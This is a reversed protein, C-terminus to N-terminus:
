CCSSACGKDRKDESSRAVPVNCHNESPSFGQLARLRSFEGLLERTAQWADSTINDVEGAKIAQVLERLFRKSQDKLENEKIQGSRLPGAALQSDTWSQLLKAEYKSLLFPLSTAL